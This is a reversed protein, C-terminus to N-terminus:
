FHFMFNFMGDGEFSAGAELLFNKYFVRVLPTVAYSRALVPHHEFQVMLWSAMENFDAEYPAIGLRFQSAYYNPGFSPLMGEIKAMAFYKRSEIDAEVGGLPATGNRSGTSVGGFAGYAYINAQYDEENWREALYDFQPGYFWTRSGNNMDMRMGRGAFAMDPRFSYTIWYDSLFPQNWAMVGLAGQYAVPHAWAAPIGVSFIVIIVAWLRM